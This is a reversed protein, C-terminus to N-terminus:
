SWVAENRPVAGDHEARLADPWRRQHRRPVDPLHSPITYRGGADCHAVDFNTLRDLTRELKASTTGLGLAHALDARDLRRYHQIRPSCATYDSAIRRLLLTATPGLVPLWFREVYHGGIPHPFPATVYWIEITGEPPAPPDPFVHDM